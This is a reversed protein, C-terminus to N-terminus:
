EDTSNNEPSIIKEIFSNLKESSLNIMSIIANNEDANIRYNKKIEKLPIKEARLSNSILLRATSAFAKANAKTEFMVVGEVGGIKKPKAKLTIDFKVGTIADLTLNMEQVSPIKGLMEVISSDASFHIVTNETYVIDAEMKEDMMIDIVFKAREEMVSQDCITAALLDNKPYIILTESTGSYYYRVGRYFDTIWNEKDKFEKRLFYNPYNGEFAVYGWSTSPFVAVVNDTNNLLLSPIDNKKLFEEAAEKIPKIMKFGSFAGVYFSYKSPISDFVSLSEIKEQEEPTLVIGASTVCGSFYGVAILFVATKLIFKFNINKFTRYLM